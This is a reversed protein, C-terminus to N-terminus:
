KQIFQGKLKCYSLFLSVNIQTVLFFNERLDLIKKLSGITHTFFKVLEQGIFTEGRKGEEMSKIHVNVSSMKKEFCGGFLPWWFCNIIFYYSM